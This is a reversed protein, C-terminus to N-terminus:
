RDIAQCMEDLERSRGVAEFEAFEQVDGPKRYDETVTDDYSSSAIVVTPV